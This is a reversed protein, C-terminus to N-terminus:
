KNQTEEKKRTNIGKAIDSPVAILSFYNEGLVNSLTTDIFNRLSNEVCYLTVYLESMEKGKQKIEDSLIDLKAQDTAIIVEELINNRTTSLNPSINIEMVDYGANPPM